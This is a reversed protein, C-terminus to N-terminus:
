IYGHPPTSIVSRLCHILNHLAHTTTVTRMRMAAGSQRWLATEEQERAFACLSFNNITDSENLNWPFKDRINGENKFQTEDSEM